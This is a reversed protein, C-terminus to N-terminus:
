CCGVVILLWYILMFVFVKRFVVVRTGTSADTIMELFWERKADDPPAFVVHTKSGVTTQTCKAVDVLPHLKDMHKYVRRADSVRKPVLLTAARARFLTQQAHSLM